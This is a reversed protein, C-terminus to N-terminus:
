TKFRAKKNLKKMIKEIQSPSKGKVQIEKYSRTMLGVVGGVGAGLAGTLIIIPGTWDSPEFNFDYNRKASDNGSGGRSLALGLSGGVLFGVLAGKGFKAKRKIRLKIIENIDVTVGTVSGSTMLLLSNEKVRLLEGKIVQSDKKEIVLQAGKKKAALNVPCILLVVIGLTLFQQIIQKIKKKNKM